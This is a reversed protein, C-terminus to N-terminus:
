TFKKITKFQLVSLELLFFIFTKKQHNKDSNKKLKKPQKLNKKEFYIIDAQSVLHLLYFDSM